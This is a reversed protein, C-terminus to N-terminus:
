TVKKYLAIGAIFVIATLVVFIFFFVKAVDAAATSVGGFGFVGAIISVIALILAWKLLSMSPQRRPARRVAMGPRRDHRAADDGAASFIPRVVRLLM